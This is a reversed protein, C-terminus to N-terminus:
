LVSNSGLVADKVQELVDYRRPYDLTYADVNQCLAAVNEFHTSLVKPNMWDLLFSSNTVAFVADTGNLPSVSIEETEAAGLFYVRALPVASKTVEFHERARYRGKSTNSLGPMKNAKPGLLRDGSDRWLRIHSAGSQALFMKKDRALLLADDSILPMEQRAFYTALTSKGLGSEGVFAIAQHDYMVASAHLAIDGAGSWILPVIHNRRFHDVVDDSASPYPICDVLRFDKDVLFDAIQPFRVLIRTGDRYFEVWNTGDANAKSQFPSGFM